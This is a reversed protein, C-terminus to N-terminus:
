LAASMSIINNNIFKLKTYVSHCQGSYTRLMQQVSLILFFMIVVNRFSSLFSPCLNNLSANM